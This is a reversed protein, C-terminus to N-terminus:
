RDVEVFRHPFVDPDHGARYCCERQGQVAPCPVPDYEVWEGTDDDYRGEDCRCSGDERYHEPVLIYQPCAAIAAKPIARQNTLTGDPHLTGFQIDDAM